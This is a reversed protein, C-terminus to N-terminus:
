INFARDLIFFKANTQGRAAGKMEWYRHSVISSIGRLVFRAARTSNAGATFTLAGSISHVSVSIVTPCRATLVCPSRGLSRFEDCVELM